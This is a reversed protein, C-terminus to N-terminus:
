GDNKAWGQRWLRFGMAKPVIGLKKHVEQDLHEKQRPADDWIRRDAARLRRVLRNQCTELTKMEADSFSGEVGAFATVVSGQIVAKFLNCEFKFRVAARWLGGM